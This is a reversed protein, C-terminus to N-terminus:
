ISLLTHIKNLFSYGINVEGDSYGGFLEPDEDYLTVVPLIVVEEKEEVKEVREEKEEAKEEKEKIEQVRDKDEKVM